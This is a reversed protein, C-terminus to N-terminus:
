LKELLATKHHFSSDLRVDRVLYEDNGYQLRYGDEIQASSLLYMRLSVRNFKGPLRQTEEATTTVVRCKTDDSSYTWTYLWEGLSNQSSAPTSLQCTQNLLGEFSM